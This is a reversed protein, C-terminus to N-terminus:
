KLIRKSIKKVPNGGYVIWEEMLDKSVVSCAGIVVGDAISVGPHIFVRACVWVRSGINVPRKIIEFLASNYNHTGGCIYSDQSIVAYDGISITDMSYLTVNDAVGVYNGIQLNWPAWIKVRPYIHCGRGIKAGFLQLICSRWFHFPRPSFRFFIFYAVEWIQRMAMNTLSFSRHSHAPRLKIGM